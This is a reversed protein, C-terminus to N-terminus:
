IGDCGGRWVGRLETDEVVSKEQRPDSNLLLVPTSVDLWPNGHHHTSPTPHHSNSGSEELGSDSSSPLCMRSANCRCVNLESWRCKM